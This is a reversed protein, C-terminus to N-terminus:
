REDALIVLRPTLQLQYRVKLDQLVSVLPETTNSAPELIRHASKGAHSFFKVGQEAPTVRPVYGVNIGQLQATM